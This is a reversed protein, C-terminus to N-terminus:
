CAPLVPSLYVNWQIIKRYLWASSATTHTADPPNFVLRYESILQYKLAAARYGAVQTVM